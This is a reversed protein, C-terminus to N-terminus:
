LKIESVSPIHFKKTFKLFCVVYVETYVGSCQQYLNVSSELNARCDSSLCKLTQLSTLVLTKTTFLGSLTCYICFTYELSIFTKTITYATVKKLFLHISSKLLILFFVYLMYKHVGDVVDRTLCM